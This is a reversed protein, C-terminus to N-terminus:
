QEALASCQASLFVRDDAHSPQQGVHFHGCRLADPMADYMPARDSLVGQTM